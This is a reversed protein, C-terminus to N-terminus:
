LLLLVKKSIEKANPKCIIGAKGLIEPIGVVNTGVIAKGAGFADLVCLPANEYFSPQIYVGARNYLKSIEDQSLPSDYWIFKNPYKMKLSVFKNQVEELEALDTKAAVAIFSYRKNRSLINEAIEPILEIGKEKSFRGIYLVTPPSRKLAHFMELDIGNPIVITKKAIGRFSRIVEERSKQSVTILKDADVITNEIWGTIKLFRKEDKTMFNLRKAELAHFTHVWKLKNFHKLMFASSTLWGHTHIVDFESKSHEYSFKNLVNSEFLAYGIRMSILPDRPFLGLDIKIGHVIVKGSGIKTVINKKDCKTFVHVECGLKALNKVLNYVHISVGGNNIPDELPYYYSVIGVKFPVKFLFQFIEKLFNLM